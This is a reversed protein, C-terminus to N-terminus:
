RVIDHINLHPALPVLGHHETRKVLKVWLIHFPENIHADDAPDFEQRFHLNKKYKENVLVSM